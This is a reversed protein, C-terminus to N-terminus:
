SSIFSIVNVMKLQMWLAPKRGATHSQETCFCCMTDLFINIDMLQDAVVAAAVAPAAVVEAAGSGGGGGGGCTAEEMGHQQRNSKEQHDKKEHKETRKKKNRKPQQMADNEKNAEVQTSGFPGGM